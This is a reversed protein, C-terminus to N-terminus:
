VGQEHLLEALEYVGGLDAGDPLYPLTIVPLGQEDVMGACEQEAVVKAAHLTAEAVLGDLQAPTANIGGSKLGAALRDADVRGEAAPGLAAHALHAGTAANVIITGVPLGVDHLQHIAEVTETVPM